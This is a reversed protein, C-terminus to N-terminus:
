KLLNFFPLPDIQAATCAVEFINAQDYLNQGIYEVLGAESMNYYNGSADWVCMIDRVIEIKGQADAANWSFVDHDLATKLMEETLEITPPEPPVEESQEAAISTPESDPAVDAPATQSAASVSQKLNPATNGAAASNDEGFIMVVAFLVVFTAGLTILVTKLTKNM